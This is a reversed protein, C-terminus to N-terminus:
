FHWRKSSRKDFITMDLGELISNVDADRTVVYNGKRDLVSLCSCSFSIFLQIIFQLPLVMVQNNAKWVPECHGFLGTFCVFEVSDEARDMIQLEYGLLKLSLHLDHKAGFNLTVIMLM